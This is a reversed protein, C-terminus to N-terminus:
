TLDTWVITWDVANPTLNGATSNAIRLTVTDATKVRASWSLGAQLAANPIIEVLDGVAAGTVTIDTDGTTSANVQAIALATAVKKAIKKIKVPTGTGAVAGAGGASPGNGVILAGAQVPGQSAKNVAM